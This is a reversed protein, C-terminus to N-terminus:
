REILATFYRWRNKFQAASSYKYAARKKEIEYQFMLSQKFTLIHLRGKQLRTRYIYRKAQIIIFNLIDKQSGIANLKGRM